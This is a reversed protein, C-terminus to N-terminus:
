FLRESDKAHDEEEKEEEKEEEEEEGRNFVYLMEVDGEV